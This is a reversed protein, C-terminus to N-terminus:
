FGNGYPDIRVIGDPVIVDVDVRNYKKLCGNEIDFDNSM